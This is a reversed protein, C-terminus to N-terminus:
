KIIVKKTKGNKYRIINIGRVPEDVKLGNTTYIGEIEDMDSEIGNISTANESNEETISFTIKSYDANDSNATIKIYWVYSKLTAKATANWAISGSALLSMWDRNKTAKTDNYTGYFDYDFEATSVHLCRDTKPAYLTIGSEPEVVFEYELQKAVIIYPKNATLKDGVNMKEIYINVTTNDTVVGHEDASASIMHVKYFEANEEGTITYDFPVYWCQYKGLRREEFTRKYTVKKYTATKTVPYPVDHILVMEMEETLALSSTEDGNDKWDYGDPAVIDTLENNKSVEAKDPTNAMATKASADLVIEGNLTASEFMLNFGDKADSGSASVEVDGNIESNGTVMVSVSPYSSYRCVDFAFGGAPNATITTNSIVVNGCNNSLTYASAYNANNLTLTMGELTLNSYNQVLFLAKESYVTGNKFTINNDKLLQFGQSETGTSGVLNGTVSYTFGAFDVTLGNSFKGQPAILGNGECNALLTITEGDNVANWAEELTEYKVANEGEGIQAVYDKDAIEYYGEKEISAVTKKGIACIDDPLETNFYGGSVFNGITTNGTTAYSGVATANSSTFTGGTVSATPAGGPYSCNDIVLADGTPNAGNGNFNYDAKAGTGNIAGGTVSLEGSKVYVGTEGSITGGTINLNGSQPQYIGASGGTVTGGEINVTTGGQGESGNGSIAFGNSTITANDKVTLTSNSLIVVGWTEEGTVEVIADGSITATSSTQLHIAETAATVKGGSVNVKSSTSYIGYSEEGTATITGGAVNVASGNEAIIVNASSSVSGGNVTITSNEDNNWFVIEATTSYTGSNVTLTGYNDVLGKFTSTIGGAGEATNSLTLAGNNIILWKGTPTVTYGAFDIVINKDAPITIQDSSANALMKITTAETGAAEVADALSYYVTEEIKAVPDRPTLTSMTGDSVWEYAVPIIVTEVNALADAVKVTVGALNGNEPDAVSITKVGSLTCGTIYTSIPLGTTHQAVSIAAGKAASGDGNSKVTYETATSTITGGAVNLNGARVEIGLETGEITTNDAVNVTAFGNLAIGEKGKLSAGSNVNVVINNDTNSLNGLVFTTGEVKGNINVEINNAVTGENTGFINLGYDVGKLTVNEGITLTRKSTYDLDSYNTGKQYRVGVPAVGSGTTEITGEGTINLSGGVLYITKDSKITKGNLDFTVNVPNVATTVRPSDGHTGGITINSALETIDVLPKVTDGDKADAFASELKAYNTVKGESDTISAVAEGLGNKAQEEEPYLGNVGTKSEAIFQAYDSNGLPASFKGGSIVIKGTAAAAIDKVIDGVYTGSVVNITGNTASKSKGLVVAKAATFTNDSLTIVASSSSNERVGYGDTVSSTFTNNSIDFTGSGGSVNVFSDSNDITNNTIVNTNESGTLQALSHLKTGTVNNVVLHYCNGGGSSTKIAVTKLDDATNTFSCNSITVNHSYNNTPKNYYPTGATNTSPVFIFADSGAVFNTRDDEFKINKIDLTESRNYGGDGDIIIQGNVTMEKGDITLNLGAKQKVISYGTINDILEITVDGTMAYAADVASQLSVYKDEGIKAVYSGQAVSYKGDSIKVPVFGEACNQEPVPQNFTGGSILLKSAANDNHAFDTTGTFVVNNGEGLNVISGNANGPEFGVIAESNEAGDVNITTNTVNITVDVDEIKFVSYANSSGPYINKSTLESNTITFVSGNSGASNSAAKINFCAWGKLTSGDITMNVPNFTTIAYGYKGDESTTISSNTISVTTANAQDGGITLPQTAGSGTTSLTANDLTLSNLSGRTDVCRGANQANNITIDKITVDAISSGGGVWIGNGTVTLTHNAGDFTIGNLIGLNRAKNGNPATFPHEGTADYDKLLTVVDGNQAADFAAQLTEFKTEGIQAVYDSKIVINGNAEVNNTASGRGVIDGITTPTSTEYGNTLDQTVTVNKATNNTVTGNSCGVIGGLDRYATITVNEVWCNDITSPATAYGMIGGAKDGNDYKGSSLLEPTSKITGGIVKCNQISVNTDDGKYAVIGAAYHYSQIDVNTLTLDKITGNSISGFLGACSWNATEDNSTLNSITKGNGDFVGRFAQGPYAAVNGIPKWNAESSLDLDATLKVTKGAYSTGSNVNDRFEKLQEVTGIELVTGENTGNLGPVAIAAVGVLLLLSLWLQRAYNLKIKMSM